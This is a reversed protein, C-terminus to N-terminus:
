DDVQGAADRLRALVRCRAVYVAGTTMGLEDAVEKAARGEVATAWFSKWTTPEFEERVLAAAWDFVHRKWNQEWAGRDDPDPQAQLVEHVATEGSGVPQRQRAKTFTSLKSRTVRYLWDRFRGRQPEYRFNPLATAVARMVDQAVDAADAPQLGRKRCFGFVMPTYANVFRGWAAHDSTDRVRVLLTPRTVLSEDVAM